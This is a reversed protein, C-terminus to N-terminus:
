QVTIPYQYGNGNSSINLLYLGPQLGQINIKTLEGLKDFSILKGLADYLHYQYTKDINDVKINIIDHAPNPYIQFDNSQYNNIAIPAFALELFDKYNFEGSQFKYGTGVYAKNNIVGSIPWLRGQNAFSFTTATWTDSTMNYKYFTQSFSANAGGLTKDSGLGYYAENGIVFATGGQTSAPFTAKQTWSDTSPNYEYTNNTVVNGTSIGGVIYGKNSSAFGSAAEIPVPFNAKKAWTDTSPTYQWVENTIGAITSGGVIYAKGNVVFSASFERSSDPFANKLTWSNNVDDYVNVDTLPTPLPSFNLYNKTGLAIYAKGNIVFSVGGTRNNEIPSNRLTWTNFTPNYMYMDTRYGATFGAYGGQVYLMDNLTFCQAAGRGPANLEAKAVWTQANIITSCFLTIGYIALTFKKLNM